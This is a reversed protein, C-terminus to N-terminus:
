KDFIFSFKMEMRYIHGNLIIQAKLLSFQTKPYSIILWSQTNEVSNTSYPPLLHAYSPLISLTLLLNPITNHVEFIPKDCSQYDADNTTYYITDIFENTSKSIRNGNADKIFDM